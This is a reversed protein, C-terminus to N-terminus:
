APRTMDRAPRDQVRLAGVAHLFHLFALLRFRSTRSLPWIEHLPRPQELAALIRRDVDDCLSADPVHRHVVALRAGALEEVMRRARGTDLQAELHTRAWVALHCSPGGIDTGTGSSTGPPAPVACAGFRHHLGRMSALRALYRTAQRAPLPDGALCGRHIPVTEVATGDASFLELVGTVRAQGLRYLLPALEGRALPRTGLPLAVGRYGM